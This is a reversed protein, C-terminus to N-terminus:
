RHQWGPQRETPNRRPLPMRAELRELEIRTRAGARLLRDTAERLASRNEQTDDALAADFAALFAAIDADVRARLERDIFAGNGEKGTGNGDHHASPPSHGNTASDFVGAPGPVERAHDSATQMSGRSTDAHSDGRDLRHAPYPQHNPQM